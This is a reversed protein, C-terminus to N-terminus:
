RSTLAILLLIALAIGVATIITNFRIREASSLDKQLQDIIKLERQLSEVAAILEDPPKGSRTLTPHSAVGGTRPLKESLGELQNKCQTAAEFDNWTHIRQTVVDALEKPFVIDENQDM